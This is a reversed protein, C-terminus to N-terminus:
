GRRGSPQAPAARGREAGREAGGVGACSTAAPGAPSLGLLYRVVEAPDTGRRAATGVLVAYSQQDIDISPV